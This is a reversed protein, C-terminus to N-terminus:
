TSAFSLQEDFNLALQVPQRFFKFRRWPGPIFRDHSLPIPIHSMLTTYQMAQACRRYAHSRSVRLHDAIAPMSNDFHRLLRVYAAALSGHADIDAELAAATEQGILESLPDRGDDSVLMYTLPHAEGDQDTGGPAHDLRVARRVNLETYRVLHQYLHSILTHQGATHALNLPPPVM